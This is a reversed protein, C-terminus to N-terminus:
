RHRTPHPRPLPALGTSNIIILSVQAVTELGVSSSRFSLLLLSSLAPGARTWQGREAGVARPGAGSTVNGDKMKAVKWM